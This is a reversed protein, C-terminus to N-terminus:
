PVHADVAAPSRHGLHHRLHMEMDVRGAERELGTSPVDRQGPYRGREMVLAAGGVAAVAEGHPGVSAELGEDDRGAGVALGVPRPLPHFREAVALVVQEPQPCL